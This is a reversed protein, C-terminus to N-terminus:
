MRHYVKPARGKADLPPAVPLYTTLPTTNM